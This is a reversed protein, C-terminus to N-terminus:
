QREFVEQDKFINGNDNVGTDVEHITKGDPSFSQIRREVENGNSLYVIQV